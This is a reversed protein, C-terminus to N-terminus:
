EKVLSLTLSQSPSLREPCSRPCDDFPGCPLVPLPPCAPLPFPFRSLLLPLDPLFLLFLPLFSAPCPSPCPSPLTPPWPPTSGGPPAPSSAWPTPHPRSLLTLAGTCLNFVIQNDDCYEIALAISSLKSPIQQYLQKDFNHANQNYPSCKFPLLVSSASPPLPPLWVLATSSPRPPLTGSTSWGSQTMNPSMIHSCHVSQTM